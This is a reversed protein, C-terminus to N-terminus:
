SFFTREPQEEGGGGSWDERPRYEETDRILNLSQAQPRPMMAGFVADAEDPSEGTRKKYIEKSEMELAGSSNPRGKRGLVQAKLDLSTPLIVQCRKIKAIGEGWAEIMVVIVETAAAADGAAM